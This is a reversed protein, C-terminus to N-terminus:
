TISSRPPNARSSDIHFQQSSQIHFEIEPVKLLPYILQQQQQFQSSYVSAVTNENIYLPIITSPPISVSPLFEKAEASLTSLSSTTM